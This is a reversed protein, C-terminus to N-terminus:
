YGSVGLQHCAEIVDPHVYVGDKEIAVGDLVISPNLVIGDTHSAASWTKAM